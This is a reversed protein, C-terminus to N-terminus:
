AAEEADPLSPLPAKRIDEVMSAALKVDQEQQSGLRGPLATLLTFAAGTSRMHLAAAIRSDAFGRSAGEFLKFDPFLAAPWQQFPARCAERYATLSSALEAVAKDVRAAAAVRDSVRQEFRALAADKERQRRDVAERKQLRQLAQVRDNRLGLRHKAKAIADAIREAESPDEAILAGAQSSRLTEIEQEIGAIARQESEIRQAATPRVAEVIKAM